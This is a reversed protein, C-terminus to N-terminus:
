QIPANSDILDTRPPTWNPVATHCTSSRRPVRVDTFGNGSGGGFRVDGLLVTSDGDERWIPVRIFRLAALAPCSELALAIIEASPATWEGDWQLASTAERRSPTMLASAAQRAGCRAAEVLSPVASVRATAVIYSLASREVAIASMCVPNAPLPSVVIDLVDVLPNAEHVARLMTARARASGAAFVLTVAIWAAVAAGARAGPQLV